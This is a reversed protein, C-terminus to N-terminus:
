RLDEFNDVKGLGSAARSQRIPSLVVRDTDLTMALARLRDIEYKLVKASDFDENDVAMKKQTELQLLQQGAVKLKDIVEKLSKAKDFDDQEVAKQKASSLARLKDQLSPDLETENVSTMKMNRPMLNPDNTFDGPFGKNVGKTSIMAVEYDGMYSGVCVISVIAVQNFINFSNAHNKTLM